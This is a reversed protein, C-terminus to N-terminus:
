SFKHKVIAQQLAKRLEAKRQEECFSAEIGNLCLTEWVKWEWNFERQLALMNELLYGGFYAPDDSNITVHMGMELFLPIPSHAM